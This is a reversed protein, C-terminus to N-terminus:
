GREMAATLANRDAVDVLLGESDWRPLAPLPSAAAVPEDLMRRLAAEVLRSMPMGRRRAEERLRDMVPDPINLTTKMHTVMCYPHNVMRNERSM